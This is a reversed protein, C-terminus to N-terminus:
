ASPLPTAGNHLAAVSTQVADIIILGTDARLQEALQGMSACALCVVDIGRAKLRLAADLVAPYSGLPDDLLSLVPVGSAEIATSPLDHGYGRALDSMIQIASTKAVILGFRRSIASAIGMSVQAIGFAPAASARSIEELGPDGYCALLIADVDDTLEARHALMALTADVAAREDATTEIALPGADPGITLISTAGTSRAASDILATMRQTSNPNIVLLRM